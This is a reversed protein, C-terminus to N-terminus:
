VLVAVLVAALATAMTGAFGWAIVVLTNLLRDFREGLYRMEGRLEAFGEKMDRDVRAFGEKMDRDVRAFGEKMDSNVQKFGDDMRGSLEDLRDDNWSDVRDEMKLAEM